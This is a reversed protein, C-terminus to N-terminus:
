GAGDRCGSRRPLTPEGARDADALYADRHLEIPSRLDAARGAGRVYGVMEGWAGVCLAPVLPLLVRPLLTAARGTRRLDCLIRRLRVLPVLGCGAAYVLRRGYSWEGNGARTAAFRRMGLYEAQMLGRLRSINVHSSIADGAIYMARRRSRLELFLASEDELYDRLKPGYDLLMQRRYSVHHGALFDAEGSEVPAVLPGFQGYLHAWSTSTRPNANEMAFGVADYGKGHARLLADAWDPAQRSHEEVYVVFPASAARVAAEMADGASAIRGVDVWRHSHFGALEAEDIGRRDPTVIVLEIQDLRTQRTLDIVAERCDGADTLGITFATLRPANASPISPM